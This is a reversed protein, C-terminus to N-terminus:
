KDNRIGSGINQKLIQYFRFETIGIHIYVDM